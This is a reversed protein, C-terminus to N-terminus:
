PCYLGSLTWSGSKAYTKLQYKRGAFVNCLYLFSANGSRHAIKLGSSNGMVDVSEFQIGQGAYSDVNVYFYLDNDDKSEWGSSPRGATVSFGINGAFVPMSMSAICVVAALILSIKKRM